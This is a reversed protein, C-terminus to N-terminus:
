LITNTKGCMSMFGGSTYMREGDSFFFFQGFIEWYFNTIHQSSSYTNLFKLSIFDTNHNM